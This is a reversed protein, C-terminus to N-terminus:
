SLNVTAVLLRSSCYVAFSATMGRQDHSDLVKTTTVYDSAAETQPEVFRKADRRIGFIELRRWEDSGRVSDADADKEKDEVFFLHRAGTSEPM